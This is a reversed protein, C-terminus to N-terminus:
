IDYGLKEPLTRVVVVEASNRFAEAANKVCSVAQLKIHLYKSIMVLSKLFLM